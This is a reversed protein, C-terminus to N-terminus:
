NFKADYAWNFVFAYTMFFLAFGIDMLLAQWLTMGLWWAIIPLSILIFGAEFGLAHVIRTQLSRDIPAVLKTFRLQWQDFGWNYSYNWLMALLSMGVTFPGLSSIPKQLVIKAVITGLIIAFGEFLLTHRIRDKTSRM